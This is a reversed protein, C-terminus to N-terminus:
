VRELPRYIGIINIILEYLCEEAAHLHVKLLLVM